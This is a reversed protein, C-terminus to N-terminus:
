RGADVQPNKGHYKEQLRKRTEFEALRVARTILRDIVSRRRRSAAELNLCVTVEELTLSDAVTNLVRCSKLAQATQWKRVSM